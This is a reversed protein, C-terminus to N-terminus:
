IIHSSTPTETQQKEEQSVNDINNNLIFNQHHQSKLHRSKNSHTFSVGCECLCKKNNKAQIEEKHKERYIKNKENIVEKNEQYNQKSRESTKEKNNEYHKKKYEKAKEQDINGKNKEYSKKMQEYRKSQKYEEEDYIGLLKLHKKSSMHEGKHGVTYTTGCECVVKQSTKAKIEEKHNEAYKKKYERSKINEEKTKEPNNRRRERRQENVRERNTDIWEQKYEQKTRNEIRHNLTGIERIIEGERNRLEEKSECPYEEVLEIDFNDIGLENMYKYFKSIEPRQKADSRHKIMRTELDSTSSGVYIESNISNVIKYIVGYRYKNINSM